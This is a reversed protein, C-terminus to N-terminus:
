RRAAVLSFFAGQPDMCQVIFSGGPVEHPGMLVKGGHETVRAAAADIEPVTVYYGWASVPLSPPRNMMGGIARGNAAFTQYTGMPGLEVARDKTWGFLGAYFDFAAVWDTVFLEHWGVHGPTGAPAEAMAPGSPQFLVFFAGQPDTVVAFRGVGPLDEPGKRVGGGAAAVREAMADVDAVGVFGSWGPHGDQAKVEDPLPAIGAVPRGDASLVTYPGGEGEWAQAEWGVVARYFAEAGGTDTTMLQYWVFSNARESM